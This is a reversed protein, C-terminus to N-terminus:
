QVPALGLLEDWNNQLFVRIGRSPRYAPYLKGFQERADTYSGGSIADSHSALLLLALSPSRSRGQNCHIFLRDGDEKWRSVAFSFFDEFMEEMFLPKEPDIMNLYLDGNEQKSLYHRHSRSPADTYGVADRHCPHKCAHVVSWDGSGTRCDTDDGVYLREHVQQM